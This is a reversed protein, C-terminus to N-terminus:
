LSSAAVGEKDALKNSLLSLLIYWLIIAAFSSYGFLFCPLAGLLFIYKVKNDRWSFTKFKLALMPIEAVLLFCFLLM